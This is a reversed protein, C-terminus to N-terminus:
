NRALIISSIVLRNYHFLLNHCSVHRNPLTAPLLLWSVYLCTCLCAYLCTCLCTPYVSTCVHLISTNAQEAAHSAVAAEIRECKFRVIVARSAQNAKIQTASMEPVHGRSATNQASIAADAIHVSSSVLPTLPRDDAHVSGALCMVLENDKVESPSTCM